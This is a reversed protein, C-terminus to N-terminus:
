EGKGTEIVVPEPGSLDIVTSGINDGYGGDVIVIDVKAM